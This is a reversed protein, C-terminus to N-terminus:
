LRPISDFWLQVPLAALFEHETNVAGTVVKLFSHSSVIYVPNHMLSRTLPNCRSSSVLILQACGMMTPWM